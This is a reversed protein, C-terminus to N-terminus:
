VDHWGPPHWFDDLRSSGTCILIVLILICPFTTCFSILYIFLTGLKWECRSKISLLIRQQKQSHLLLSSVLRNDDGRREIDGYCPEWTRREWNKSIQTLLCWMDEIVVDASDKHVNCCYPQPNGPVERYLTIAISLHRYSIYQSEINLVYQESYLRSCRPLSNQDTM